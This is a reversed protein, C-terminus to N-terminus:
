TWSQWLCNLSVEPSWSMGHNITLLLPQLWRVPVDGLSLDLVWRGVGSLNPNFLCDGDKTVRTLTFIVYVSDAKPAM